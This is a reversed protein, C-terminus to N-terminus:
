LGGVVVAWPEVRWATVLGERVYPDVAVFEEPDGKESFVIVAGTPPDGTAGGALVRGDDVWGGILELHAPRFPARREVVDEVYDYILLKLSQAM